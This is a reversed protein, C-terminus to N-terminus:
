VRLGARLSRGSASHIYAEQLAQGQHLDFAGSGIEQLVQFISIYVTQGSVNQVPSISRSGSIFTRKQRYASM